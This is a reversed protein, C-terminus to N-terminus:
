SKKLRTLGSSSLSSLSFARLVVTDLLFPMPESCKVLNEDHDINTVATALRLLIAVFYLFSLVM